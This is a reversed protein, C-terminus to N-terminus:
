EWARMYRYSFIMCNLMQFYVCCFLLNSEFNGYVYAGSLIFFLAYNFLMMFLLTIKTLFSNVKKDDEKMKLNHEKDLQRFLKHDSSKLNNYNLERNLKHYLKHRIKDM